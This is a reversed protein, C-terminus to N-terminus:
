KQHLFTLISVVLGALSTILCTIIATKGKVKEANMTDSKDNAIKIAKIAEEALAMRLVLPDKDKGDSVISILTDVNKKVDVLQNQLRDATISGNKMENLLNIILNILHKNAYDKDDQEEYITRKSDKM